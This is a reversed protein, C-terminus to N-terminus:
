RAAREVCARQEAHADAVERAAELAEAAGHQLRDVEVGHGGGAVRELDLHRVAGQAATEADHLDRDREGVALRAVEFILLVM